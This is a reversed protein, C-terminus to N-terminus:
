RSVYAFFRHNWERTHERPGIVREAKRIVESLRKGISALIRRERGNRAYPCVIREEPLALGVSTPSVTFATPTTTNSWISDTELLITAGTTWNNKM